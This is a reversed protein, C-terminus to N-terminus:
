DGILLAEYDPGYGPEMVIIMGLRYTIGLSRAPRASHSHDLKQVRRAELYAM